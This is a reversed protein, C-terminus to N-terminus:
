VVEHARVPLPPQWRRRFDSDLCRRGCSVATQPEFTSCSRVAFPDSLGPFGRREFEVEVDRGALACWFAAHWTTM